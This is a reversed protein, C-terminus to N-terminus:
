DNSRKILFNANKLLGNYPKITDKVYQLGKIASM